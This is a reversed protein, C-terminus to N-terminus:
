PSAVPRPRSGSTAPGSASRPLAAWGTKPSMDELNWDQPRFPATSPAHRPYGLPSETEADIIRGVGRALDELLRADLPDRDWPRAGAAEPLETWVRGAPLVRLGAPLYPEGAALWRAQGRSLDARLPVPRGLADLALNDALHLEVDGQGGLTFFATGPVTDPGQRYVNGVLTVRGTQYPQGQWEGALLNYHVARDGPNFILNNVMAGHAGGKFLANRQRNSAYVNGYLLIGGTNDHILSGKSHEGKEHVSRSLGEYILNHSYTVAHSSRQRWEYPGSGDFRPGSASLNEDTAWSFSCHDVIVDHAGGQTSLGDQDGGGRKPRGFEGPRFALHQVIVDHTAIVTEAKIVTVGPPPATQGAVTIHPHRIALQAGGMDIVGGVEFVVIRPGEAELAARLSGPGATNLNTVRLLRGGAGGRAGAAWGRESLPGASFGSGPAARVPSALGAALAALYNELHTYGGPRHPRAADAPDDADLGHRREWDDPLGDRDRDVPAPASALAPWGGVQAQSDVLRGRRTQVQEVIRRDVADRVRSAGAHELVKELAAAAPDAEVPGIEIPQALRYGPPLGGPLHERHARVLEYPDAPLVGNMTNGAFHARAHPSSEEFALAGRSNPGPLYANDVFNYTSRTARDLNYGARERGWDYFVNSRFDFLAGVPDAAPALWNGPRPMRDLHHAWLNHHMSVRAGRGARLLTGFGHAQGAKAASRNLSEAILSWQVTVEDFSREPADFRASVSLAEDTSWSASVHDLVIRRGAVIGIADGDVRSEDGLRSRLYRVVVDDAAIEFPQDRLTIGDGPASQGAITMRGHTVRLPSKLAITGSVAFLVTRPGHAEVAARLSGPGADDLHTVYIVAGGRGGLAHRGAGEAGPFAPLPALPAPARAPTTCAALALVGLIFAFSRDPMTDPHYGTAGHVSRRV